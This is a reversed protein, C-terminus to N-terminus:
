KKESISFNLSSFNRIYVRFNTSLAVIITRQNNYVLPKFQKQWHHKLIKKLVIHLIIQFDNNMENVALSKKGQKLQM